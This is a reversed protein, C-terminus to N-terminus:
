HAPTRAVVANRVTEVGASKLVHALEALTAGTTMVDDVVLVSRWPLASPVVFAGRLNGRRVPASLGAQAPTARIRQVADRVLPVALASALPRALEVAQNFGRGRLRVPHLPVPLVAECQWDAELREALRMGLWPALELARGYKLGQVLQPVPFAYDFLAVSREFAPQSQLCAGCEGAGAVPVACRPCALAESWRPLEAACPKCVPGAGHERGCLFCEAIWGARM